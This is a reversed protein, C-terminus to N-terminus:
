WVLVEPDIIFDEYPSDESIFRIEAEPTLSIRFVHSSEVGWSAVDRGVIKALPFTDHWGESTLVEHCVGDLTITVDGECSIRDDGEFR